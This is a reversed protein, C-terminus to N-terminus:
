RRNRSQSMSYDPREASRVDRRCLPPVVTSKFLLGRLLRLVSFSRRAEDPMKDPAAQTPFHGGVSDRRRSTACAALKHTKQRTTEGEDRLGFASVPQCGTSRFLLWAAHRRGCLRLLLAILEAFIEFPKPVLNALHDNAHVVDHLPRQGAQDTTSMHQEFTHRPQALRHEDAREGVRQMQFEAPNLERWVQHRGVQEARVDHKFRRVFLLLELELLPRDEGVDQERVFDVARRRLRLRCQEFRHLLVGDGDGTVRVFQGFREEHEGRLVRQFHLSRVRQGFRLEVAEEVLQDNRERTQALQFQDEVPGRFRLGGLGLRDERTFLSQCHAAEGSLDRDGLVHAAVADRQNQRSVGVVGEGGLDGLTENAVAAARATRLRHDEGRFDQRDEVAAVVDGSVVQLGDGESDEAM